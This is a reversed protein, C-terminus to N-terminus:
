YNSAPNKWLPWLSSMLPLLLSWWLCNRGETVHTLLLCTSPATQTKLVLRFLVTFRCIDWLPSFLAALAWLPRPTHRQMPRRTAPCFITLFCSTRPLCLFSPCLPLIVSLFLLRTILKLKFMVREQCIYFNFIQIIIKNKNKWRICIRTNAKCRLIVKFIQWKYCLLQKKM